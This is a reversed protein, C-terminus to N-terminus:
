PIYRIKFDEEMIGVVQDPLIGSVKTAYVGRVYGDLRQWKAVWSRGPESLTILGEFVQSTCDMINDMNDRLSLFEDCNPCGERFFRQLACDTDTTDVSATSTPVGPELKCETDDRYQVGHLRTFPAASWACRLERVDKRRLQLISATQRSNQAAFSTKEAKDGHYKVLSPGHHHNQHFNFTM